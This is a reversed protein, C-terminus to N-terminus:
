ADSPFFTRRSLVLAAVAGMFLVILIPLTWPMVVGALLIVLPVVWIAYWAWTQHRRYGGVATALVLLAFGILWVGQVRFNFRIFSIVESDSTLWDWQEAPAIVPLYLMYYLAFLLFFAGLAIFVIWARDKM